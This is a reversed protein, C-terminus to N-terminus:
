HGSHTAIGEVRFGVRRLERWCLHEYVSSWFMGFAFAFLLEELPIGGILVGTLAGINWVHRIYGPVLVELGLIFIFYYVLFLLSGIWTKRLLDRRCFTSAVGGGFMALIGPYIPNWPFWVLVLFISLPSTLAVYHWRHIPRMREELSLASLQKGTLINYLVVGTGGIGFCFILSEIDFGTRQALDFLSPPSWYAPVFLPESLGFLSTLISSWLMVKRHLPFRWYFIGWPILFAISWWLWVYQMDRM